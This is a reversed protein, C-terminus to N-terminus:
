GDDENEWRYKYDFPKSLGKLIKSVDASVDGWEVSRNRQWATSIKQVANRMPIYSHAEHPNQHFYGIYKTRIYEIAEDRVAMRFDILSTRRNQQDQQATGTAERSKTDANDIYDAFEGEIDSAVKKELDIHFDADCHAFLWGTNDDNPFAITAEHVDKVIIRPDIPYYLIANEEFRDGPVTQSSEAFDILVSPRSTNSMLAYFVDFENGVWLAFPFKRYTHTYAGWTQHYEQPDGPIALIKAANRENEEASKGKVFGSPLRQAQSGQLRKVTPRIIEPESM